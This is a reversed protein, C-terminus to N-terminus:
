LSKRERSDNYFMSTTKDNDKLPSVTIQPVFCFSFINNTLKIWIPLIRFPFIEIKFWFDTIKLSTRKFIIWRLFQATKIMLTRLPIRSMVSLKLGSFPTDPFLSSQETRSYWCHKYLLPVFTLIVIACSFKM